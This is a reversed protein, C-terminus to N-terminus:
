GMKETKLTKRRSNYRLEMIFMSSVNASSCLMSGRTSDKSARKRLPLDYWNAYHTPEEMSKNESSEM